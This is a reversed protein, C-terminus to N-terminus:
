FNEIAVITIIWRYSWRYHMNKVLCVHKKLAQLTTDFFLGRSWNIEEYSISFSISRKRCFRSGLVQTYKSLLLGRRPKIVHKSSGQNEYPGSHKTSWNKLALRKELGVEVGGEGWVSVCRGLFLRLQPSLLRLDFTWFHSPCLSVFTIHLEHWFFRRAELLRHEVTSNLM